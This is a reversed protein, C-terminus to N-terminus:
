WGNATPDGSLEASFALDAEVMVEVLQEFVVGPRWRLDELARKPDSCSLDVEAPREFVPEQVVHDRWDLGCHDFAREVFDRM